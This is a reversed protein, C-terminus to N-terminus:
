QEGGLEYVPVGAEPESVPRVSLAAFYASGTNMSGWTGLRAALRVPRPSDDLNAVCFRLRRWDTDGHLEDSEAFYDEMLVLHVGKAERGVGEARAWASVEHVTRPALVIKQVVRSDAEVAHRLRVCSRGVGDIECRTVALEAAGPGKEWKEHEWELTGDEFGGNRALETGAVGAAAGQGSRELRRWRGPNIVLFAWPEGKYRDFRQEDRIGYRERADVAELLWRNPGQAHFLVGMDLGKRAADLNRLAKPDAVEAMEWRQNPPSNVVGPYFVGWDLAYVATVTSQAAAQWADFQNWSVDYYGLIPPAQQLDRYGRLGIWGFGVVLLGLAIGLAGRLRPPVRVAAFLVALGLYAFPKLVLVHHAAWSEYTKVILLLLVGLFAALFLLPRARDPDRRARALGLGTCAGVIGVYLLTWAWRYLGYWFDHLAADANAYSHYAGFPDLRYFLMIWHEWLAPLDSLAISKEAGALLMGRYDPILRLAGALGLVCGAATISLVRVSRRIGDVLATTACAALGAGVFWLFNVREWGGLFAVLALPLVKWYSPSQVVSFLLVFLCSGLALIMFHTGRDTIGLVVLAVDSLLFALCWWCAARSGGSLRWCACLMAAFIGWVLSLKAARYVHLTPPLFTAAYLLGEVAGLYPYSRVPVQHDFLRISYGYLAESRAAPAKRFWSTPFLPLYEDQNVPPLRPWLFLALLALGAGALLVLRRLPKARDQSM